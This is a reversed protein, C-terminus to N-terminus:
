QNRHTPPKPYRPGMNTPNKTMPCLCASKCTLRCLHNLRKPLYCSAFRGISVLSTKTIRSTPNLVTTRLKRQKSLVCVLQIDQSTKPQRQWQENPQTSSSATLNTKDCLSYGPRADAPNAQLNQGRPTRHGQQPKEELINPRYDLAYQNLAPKVPTPCKSDRPNLSPSRPERATKPFEPPSPLSCAVASAQLRM